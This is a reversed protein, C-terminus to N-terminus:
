IGMRTMPLLDTLTDCLLCYKLRNSKSGIVIRDSHLHDSWALKISTNTCHVDQQAFLRPNFSINGFDGAVLLVTVIPLVPHDNAVAM